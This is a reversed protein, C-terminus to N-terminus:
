LRLVMLRVPMTDIRKLRRAPEIIAKGADADYELIPYDHNL